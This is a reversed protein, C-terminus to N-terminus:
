QPIDQREGIDVDPILDFGKLLQMLGGLSKNNGTSISKRGVIKCGIVQYSSKGEYVFMCDYFTCGVYSHGDLPIRENHFTKNVMQIKPVEDRFESSSTVGPTMRSTAVNVEPSQFGRYIVLVVIALLIVIGGVVLTLGRRDKKPHRVSTSGERPFRRQRYLVIASFVVGLCTFVFIMKPLLYGRSLIDNRHDYLGFIVASMLAGIASYEAAKTTNM